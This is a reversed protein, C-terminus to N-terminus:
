LKKLEEIGWPKHKLGQVKADCQWHKAWENRKEECRALPTADEEEKLIREVGNVQHNMCLVQEEM